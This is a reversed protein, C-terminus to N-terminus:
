KKYNRRRKKTNTNSKYKKGGLVIQGPVHKGPEGAISEYQNQSPEVYNVPM